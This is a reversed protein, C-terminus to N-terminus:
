SVRRYPSRQGYYRRYNHARFVIAGQTIFIPMGQNQLDQSPQYFYVLWNSIIGSLISWGLQGIAFLWLIRSTALAKTTTNNTNTNMNM